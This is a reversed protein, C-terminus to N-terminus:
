RDIYIYYIYLVLDGWFRQFGWPITRILFWLETLNGADNGTRRFQLLIQSTVQIQRVNEPSFVHFVCKMGHNVDNEEYRIIFFAVHWQWASLEWIKLKKNDVHFEWYVGNFLWYGSRSHGKWHGIDQVKTLFHQYIMPSSPAKRLPLWNEFLASSKISEGSSAQLYSCYWGQPHNKGTPWWKGPRYCGGLAGHSQGDLCGSTTGLRAALKAASAAPRNVGAPLGGAPSPLRALGQSKQSGSSNFFPCRYISSHEMAMNGCTDVPWLKVSFLVNTLPFVDELSWRRHRHWNVPSKKFFIGSASSFTQLYFIIQFSCNDRFLELIRELRARSLKQIDSTTYFSGSM